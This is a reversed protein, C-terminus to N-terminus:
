RNPLQKLREGSAQFTLLSVTRGSGDQLRRAWSSELQSWEARDLKRHELLEFGMSAYKPFLYSHLFVATLEPIDLREIEGRDRAPDIGIVIELLCCFDHRFMLDPSQRHEILALAQDPYNGEGIQRQRGGFCTM